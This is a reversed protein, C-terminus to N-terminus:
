FDCKWVIETSGDKKELICKQVKYKEDVEYNDVAHAIFYLTDTDNEYVFKNGHRDLVLNNLDVCSEQTIYQIDNIGYLNVNIKQVKDDTLNLCTNCICLKLPHNWIYRLENYDDKSIKPLIEM